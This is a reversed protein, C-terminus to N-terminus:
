ARSQQSLFSPIAVKTIANYENTERTLGIVNAIV